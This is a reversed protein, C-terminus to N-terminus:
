CPMVVTLNVIDQWWKSAEMIPHAHGKMRQLTHAGPAIAIAPWPSM